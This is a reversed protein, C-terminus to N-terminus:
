STANVGKMVAMLGFFALVCGGAVLTLQAGETSAGAWAFASTVAWYAGYVFLAAVLIYSVVEVATHM